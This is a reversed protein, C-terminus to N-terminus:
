ESGLIKLHNNKRGLISKRFKQIVPEEKSPLRPKLIKEESFHKRIIRNSIVKIDCWAGKNEDYLASTM